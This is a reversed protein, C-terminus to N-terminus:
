FLVLSINLKELLFYLIFVWYVYANGTELIEFADFLTRLYHESM